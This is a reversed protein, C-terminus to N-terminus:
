TGTTADAVDAVVAIHILLIGTSRTFSKRGATSTGLANDMSVCRRYNGVTTFLLLRLGDPVSLSCVISM